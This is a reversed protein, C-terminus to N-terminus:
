RWSQAWARRSVIIYMFVSVSVSIVWLIDDLLLALALGSDRAYSYEIGFNLEFSVAEDLEPTYLAEIGDM